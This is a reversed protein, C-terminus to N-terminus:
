TTINASAIQIKDCVPVELRDSCSLGGARLSSRDAVHRIRRHQDDGIEGCQQQVEAVEGAERSVLSRHLGAIEEAQRDIEDDEGDDGHDDGGAGSLTNPSAIM